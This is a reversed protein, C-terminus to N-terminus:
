RKAATAEAQSCAEAPRQVVEAKEKADDDSSSVKGSLQNPCLIYNVKTGPNKGRTVLHIGSTFGVVKNGGVYYANIHNYDSNTVCIADATAPQNVTSLVQNDIVFSGYGFATVSIANGRLPKTFTLKNGVISVSGTNTAVFRLQTDAFTNDRFEVRRAPGLDNDVSCNANKDVCQFFNSEFSIRGNDQSQFSNFIRAVPQAGSPQALTNRSFSIEDNLFFTTACGNKANSCTNGEATGNITGEFDLGVDGVDAVKNNKLTIQQGMSGWIGGGGTARVDNNAFLINRAWRPNGRAGNLRADGGWYFLGDRYGVVTNGEVVAGDVFALQACAGLRTQTSKCTNNTLSVDRDLSNPSAKAYPLDHNTVLLEIDSATNEEIRIHDAYTAALVVGGKEYSGAKSGFSLKRIAIDKKHADIRGTAVFIKGSTGPKIISKGEVSGLLTINSPLQFSDIICTGAPFEITSNGKEIASNLADNDVSTGNCHAKYDALRAVGQTSSNPRQGLSPLAVSIFLLSFLTTSFKM